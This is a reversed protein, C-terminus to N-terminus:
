QSNSPETVLVPQRSEIRKSPGEFERYMMASYIAVVLISLGFGVLREAAYEEVVSSLLASFYYIPIIQLLSLVIKDVILWGRVNNWKDSILPVKGRFGSMIVEGLPITMITAYIAAVTKSHQNIVKAVVVVIVLSIATKVFGVLIAKM